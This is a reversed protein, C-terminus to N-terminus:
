CLCVRNIPVSDMSERSLQQEAPQEQTMNHEGNAATDFIHYIWNIQLHSQYMQYLIPSQVSIGRVRGRESWSENVIFLIMANVSVNGYQM